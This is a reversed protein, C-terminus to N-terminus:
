SPDEGLIKTGIAKLVKTMELLIEYLPKLAPDIYKEDTSLM